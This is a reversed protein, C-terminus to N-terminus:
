EACQKAQREAVEIETHCNACVLDCKKAESVIRDWSCAYNLSSLHFSKGAKNRHHFHLAQLCRSYGCKSCKGGFMEVLKTKRERRVRRQYTKFDYNKKRRDRAPRGVKAGNGSGFPSCTFCYKRRQTHVTKGNLRTRNGIRAGCPCSRIQRPLSSNFGPQGMAEVHREVPYHALATNSVRIWCTRSNPM